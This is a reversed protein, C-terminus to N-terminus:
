RVGREITGTNAALRSCRDAVNAATHSGYNKGGAALSCSLRDAIPAPASLVAGERAVIMGEFLVLKRPPHAAVAEPVGGATITFLTATGGVEVGYDAIGLAKAGAASILDFATEIQDDRRFDGKWGIIAVRELLDGSGYPSWTDRIDDNGAFVLVGAACYSWPRCSAL